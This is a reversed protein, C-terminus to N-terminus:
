KKQTKIWELNNRKFQFNGIFLEKNILFNQILELNEHNYNYSLTIHPIYKDYMHKFGYNRKLEEHVSSVREDLIAVLYKKGDVDWVAVEKVKTRTQISENPSLEKEIDCLIGIHLSNWDIPDNIFRSIYHFLEHNIKNIKLFCYTGTNMM